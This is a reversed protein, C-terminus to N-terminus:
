TTIDAARLVAGVLRHALVRARNADHRDATDDFHRVTPYPDWQQGETLLHM